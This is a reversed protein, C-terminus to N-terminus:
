QPSIRFASGEYMDCLKHMLAFPALGFGSLQAGYSFDSTVYISPTTKTGVSCIIKIARGLAAAVENALQYLDLTHTVPVITAPVNGSIWDQLEYLRLLLRSFDHVSGYSRVVPMKAEIVIRKNSIAQYIFSAAAFSRHDPVYKGLTAYPYITVLGGRRALEREYQIKLHVYPAVEYAPCETLGYAM